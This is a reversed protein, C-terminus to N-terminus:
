WIPTDYGWKNDISIYEETKTERVDWDVWRYEANKYTYDSDGIDEDTDLQCEEYVSGSDGNSWLAAWEDFTFHLRNV